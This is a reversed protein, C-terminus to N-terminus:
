KSRERPKRNIKALLADRGTQATKAPNPKYGLAIESEEWEPTGPEITDVVTGPLVSPAIVADATFSQEHEEVLVQPDHADGEVWRRIVAIPRGYKTVTVTEGHRVRDLVESANRALKTADIEM